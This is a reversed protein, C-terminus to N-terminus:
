YIVLDSTCGGAKLLKNNKNIPFSSSHQKHWEFPCCGLHLTDWTRQAIIICPPCLGIRSQSLSKPSLLKPPFPTRPALIPHHNHICAIFATPRLVSNAIQDVPSQWLSSLQEAPQHNPLLPSPSQGLVAVHM